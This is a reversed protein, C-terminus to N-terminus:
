SGSGTGLSAGVVVFPCALPPPPRAKSGSTMGVFPTVLRALSFLLLPLAFVLLLSARLLNNSRHWRKLTNGCLM